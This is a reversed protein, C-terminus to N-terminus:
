SNDLPEFLIRHKIKELAFAVEDKRLGDAVIVRVEVSGLSTADSAAAIAEVQENREYDVKFQAM